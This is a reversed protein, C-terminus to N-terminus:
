VIAAAFSSQAALSQVGSTLHLPLPHNVSPVIEELEGTKLNLKRWQFVGGCGKHYDGNRDEIAARRLDLSYITCNSCASM